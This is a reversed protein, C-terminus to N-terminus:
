ASWLLLHNTSDDRGQSETMTLGSPASFDEFGDGGSVVLLKVPPGVLSSRRSHAQGQGTPMPQDHAAFSSSKGTGSHNILTAKTQAIHHSMSISTSEVSTLFRVHGTHGKPLGTVIPAADLKSTAASLHPTPVTLVVGASTGIWLLDKCALLATVRLCAAKHQRIIDDCGTSLIKSVAPAINVDLLCDYTTAHYLRIIPSQSTSVWVGLGSTVMNSVSRSVDVSVHFSIEVEAKDINYIKIHNQIACWLKGMVALLRTVPVTSLDVVKPDNTLWTASEEDRNFIVLQGNTLGAFVKSDLYIICNVASSLTVKIKNKKIRINDNCNYVHICGDETGLWMTPQNCDSEIGSQMSDASCLSDGIPVFDHGFSVGSTRQGSSVGGQSGSGTSKQDDDPSHQGEDEDDSSDSDLRLISKPQQGSSPGKSKNLSQMSLWSPAVATGHSQPSPPCSSPTPTASLTTMTMASSSYASTTHTEDSSVSLREEAISTPRRKQGGQNADLRRHSQGSAGSTSSGSVSSPGSPTVPLLSAPVSAVCLIRASCVGNCSTVQPEPHLSLICVQGVYGDSNCVWVDRFGQNNYGLTGEACTFQLGARTKRIPLPFLFEPPQRKDASQALHGKVEFFDKEWSTRKEPTGFIVTLNDVGERNFPSFHTTITLDLSLLQSGSNQKDTLQKSLSGILDKLSEELNQHSSSINNVLDNIQNVTALDKQLQEIDKITKAINTDSVKLLEINDLSIRSLLKYKNGELMAFASSGISSAKRGASSSKRKISTILLLDTFLFICRDKKAGLGGPITVHDHRVYSRAPELCLDGIGDILAELEKMKSVMQEHATAEEEIRNIKLALEHIEKQATILLQYDDHDYDTHKLLEKILLEYRPIRQVPMILLADLALKGKHERATHELFKVFASKTNALKIAEKARAWNNIFATYTDIIPQKTFTELFVDGLTQKSDWQTKRNQVQDLFTEHHRLIDPIEYFIEDVLYSDVISSGEASKLPRIYKNLLIDLSEVYSKETDYIEQMVLTRTEKMTAGNQDLNDTPTDSPCVPDLASVDDIFTINETACQMPTQHVNCLTDDLRRDTMAAKPRGLRPLSQSRGGPTADVERSRSSSRSGPRRIRTLTGFPTKVTESGEFTLDGKSGCVPSRDILSKRETGTGPKGRKSDASPDRSGFNSRPIRSERSRSRYKELLLNRIKELEKQDGPTRTASPTPSTPGSSQAPSTPRTTVPSSPREEAKALVSPRLPPLRTLKRRSVSLPPRSAPSPTPETAPPASVTPRPLSSVRPTRLGTPLTNEALNSPRGSSQNKQGSSLTMVSRFPTWKHDHDPSGQFLSEPDDTKLSSDSSSCSPSLSASPSLAAFPVCCPPKPSSTSTTLGLSQEISKLEWSVRDIVHYVEDWNSRFGALEGPSVLSAQGLLETLGTVLSAMKEDLHCILSFTSLIVITFIFLYPLEYLAFDGHKKRDRAFIVAESTFVLYFTLNALLIIGFLKDFRMKLDAIRKRLLIEHSFNLAMKRSFLALWRSRTEVVYSKELFYIRCIFCLYAAMAYDSWQNLFFFVVMKLFNHSTTWGNLYTTFTDIALTVSLKLVLAMKLTSISRRCATQCQENTEKLIDAALARIESHNYTFFIVVILYAAYFTGETLVQLLPRNKDDHAISPNM